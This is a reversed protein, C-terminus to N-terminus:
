RNWRDRPSRYTTRRPRDEPIGNEIQSEEANVSRVGDADEPALGAEDALQKEVTSPHMRELVSQKRDLVSRLEPPLNASAPIYEQKPGKEPGSSCRYQLTSGGSESALDPKMSSDAQNGASQGDQAGGLHVHGTGHEGATQQPAAGDRARTTPETHTPAPLALPKSKGTLNEWVRDAVDEIAKAVDEYLGLHGTSRHTGMMGNPATRSRISEAVWHMRLVQDDAFQEITMGQHRESDIFMTLRVLDMPEMDPKEPEEIELTSREGYKKPKLKSCAWKIIDARVRIAHANEATAQKQLDMLEDFYNDAQGDRARAYQQQFATNEELWRLVTKKTPMAKQICIRRLSKGEAIQECINDATKQDFEIRPRGPKKKTTSPGRATKKKMRM